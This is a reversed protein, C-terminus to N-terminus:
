IHVLYTFTLREICVQSVRSLLVNMNETNRETIYCLYIGHESIVLLLIGM